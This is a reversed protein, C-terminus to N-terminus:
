RKSPSPSLMSASWKQLFQSIVWRINIAFAIVLVFLSIQLLTFMQQDHHYFFREVKKSDKNHHYFVLIPIAALLSM